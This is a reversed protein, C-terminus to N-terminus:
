LKENILTTFPIKKKEVKKVSAESERNCESKIRTAGGLTQEPNWNKSNIVDGEYDYTFRVM